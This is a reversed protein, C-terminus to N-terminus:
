FGIYYSSDGDPRMSQIMKIKEHDSLKVSFSKSEDFILKPGAGRLQNKDAVYVTQSLTPFNRIDFHYEPAFICSTTLIPM